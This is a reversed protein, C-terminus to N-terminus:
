RDIHTTYQRYLKRNAVNLFKNTDNLLLRILSLLEVRICSAIFGPYLILHAALIFISFSEHLSYTWYGTPRHHYHDGM